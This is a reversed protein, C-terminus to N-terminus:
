TEKQSLHHFLAGIKVLLQLLWLHQTASYKCYMLLLNESMLHTLWKNSRKNKTKEPILSQKFISSQYHAGNNCNAHAATVTTVCIWDRSEAQPRNVRVTLTVVKTLPVKSRKSTKVARLTTPALYHKWLHRHNQGRPLHRGSVGQASVGLLRSSYRVTRM